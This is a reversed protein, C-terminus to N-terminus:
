RAQLRSLAEYADPSLPNGEYATVQEYCRAARKVDGLQEYAQGLKFLTRAGSKTSKRFEVLCPVALDARGVELYLDGLLQNSAFWADEDEGSAFKEPKPNRVEELLATAKEREGYRLLARALLVKATLSEPRVVLALQTLHHAVDLWEVDAHRGDLVTRAKRLCYDFDFGARAHELRARLQEPMVSYYYRDKRELLDKDAANYVLAMETARLASLADGTREYLDALTRLTELGSRESETYLHYNEIAAPLDGRANADDALLKVTHFYAQREADALNKPGVGAGARKALEYNHRADDLHGARQHAQAIQVFITPGLTPLGRAALRLYEGGRQWRANDDILALGLQQVYAHDFHAAAIGHGAFADYEPETVDQYLMRKLGWVAKDDPQNALQREVAAIAEMRRGPLALQPLGVRRRMEEHLTLGLQWAQLLVAQRQPNDPGYHEPGLLHELEAAAQDYDRAHLHAVARWYDVPPRLAPQLSLVLDLLRLSEDLQAPEPKGQILLSGARDLCLDLDVLALTQPDGALQKLDLSRHVDWFGERALKNNPDLQLARRFAQLARRYRGVRAYSLGRFAHKMVRLGPLVRLTYGFYLLPPLFLALSRYQVMDYTLIALGLGLTACMAGIEVESEEEQGAFTLLYFFPIGLLLQVGFVTPDALTHQQRGAEQGIKGFWYLAAAVLGAGLALISGIRTIRHRVQHLLGFALGAAAGGGLVPLFLKDLEGQDAQRGLYIGALAGGLIGAYVLTPSELLLFLLFVLLRGKVRFGERRKLLAAAALALALGALTCLSVRLPAAWADAQPAAAQSLAAFLVLGLYVGKLIYETNFWRM